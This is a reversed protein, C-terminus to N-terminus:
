IRRIIVRRIIDLEKNMIVRVMYILEGNSNYIFSGDYNAYRSHHEYVYSRIEHLANFFEWNMCMRCYMNYRRKKM